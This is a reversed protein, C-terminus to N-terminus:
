EENGVEMVKWYGSYMQNNWDCSKQAAERTFYIVPNKEYEGDVTIRVIYYKM